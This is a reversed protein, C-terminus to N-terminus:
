PAGPTARMAARDASLAGPPPPLTVAGTAAWEAGRALTTQFGLGSMALPGHGLVTHFVRGRGYAITMLVPEHGGTGREEPAALATALVTLNKAPGRLKSYLEDKAHKWRVPLGRLIPHDPERAEVVFEHQSGHTGGPGPSHDEVVRGDRWRLMPGSKENRGGWGGLGIIENFAPWAPFANDAAHYVVVGGGGRVYSEFAERVPEPWDEGNYNLVVVRYKSFEPRWAAWLTPALRKHAEVEKRWAAHTVAYAAAEADTPKKGKSPAPPRPAAPPTTSVEVTFRGSDELIWKLIPTCAAWDHNNQGDIILAPLREGAM